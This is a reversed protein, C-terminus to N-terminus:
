ASKKYTSQLEEEVQELLAEEEKKLAIRLRRQSERRAIRKEKVGELSRSIFALVTLPVVLPWAVMAMIMPPWDGGDFEVGFGIAADWVIFGILGALYIGIVYLVIM